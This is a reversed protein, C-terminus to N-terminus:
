MERENHNKGSRKDSMNVTFSAHYVHALSDESLLICDVVAVLIRAIDHQWELYTKVAKTHFIM